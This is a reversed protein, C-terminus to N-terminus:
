LLFYLVLLIIFILCCSTLSMIIWITWTNSPEVPKVSKNEPVFVPLTSPPSVPPIVDADYKGSFGHSTTCWVGKNQANLDGGCWGFTSCCANNICKQNGYNPGCRGDVTPKYTINNTSM